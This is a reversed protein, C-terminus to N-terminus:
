KHVRDGTHKNVMCVIDDTVVLENIAGMAVKKHSSLKGTLSIWRRHQLLQARRQRICHYAKCTRALTPDNHKNGLFMMTDTIQQQAMRITLKTRMNNCNNSVM